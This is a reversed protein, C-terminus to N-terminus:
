ALLGDVITVADKVCEVCVTSHLHSEEFHRKGEVTTLDCGLLERCETTSHKEEFARIFDVVMQYTKEKDLDTRDADKGYKAGIVMVGGTVAGCTQQRRGMGAGFGCAIRYAAQEPLGTQDLFAAVVSQACNFGDEFVGLAAEIKEM